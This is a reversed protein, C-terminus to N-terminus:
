PRCHELNRRLAGPHVYEILVSGKTPDQIVGLRCIFRALAANASRSLLLWVDEAAALSGM